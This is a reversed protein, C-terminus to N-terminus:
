ESPLRYGNQKFTADFGFVYKTVHQDATVMVLCDIFSPSGLATTQLRAASDLAKLDSPVLELDGTDNGALLIKATQFAAQRSHKKGIVNLSEAFVEYPLLLRLGENAIKTKVEIACEHLEDDPRLLSILGSSDLVVVDLRIAM